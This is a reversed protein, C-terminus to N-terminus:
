RLIEQWYIVRDFSSTSSTFLLVGDDWQGSAITLRAALDTGNNNNEAHYTPLAVVYALDLNDYNALVAASLSRSELTYDVSISAQSMYSSAGIACSDTVTSSVLEFHDPYFNPVLNGGVDRVEVV